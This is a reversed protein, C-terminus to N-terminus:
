LLTAVLSLRGRLGGFREEEWGGAKEVEEAEVVLAEGEVGGGAVEARGLDAAIDFV